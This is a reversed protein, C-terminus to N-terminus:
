TDRAGGGDRKYLINWVMGGGIGAEADGERGENGMCM